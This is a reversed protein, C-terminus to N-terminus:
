AILKNVLAVLACLGIITVTSRNLANGANITKSVPSLTPIGKTTSTVAEVRVTSSEDSINVPNITSYSLPTETTTSRANPTTTNKCSAVKNLEMGYRYPNVHRQCHEGAEKIYIKQDSMMGGVFCEYTGVDRRQTYTYVLGKEEWQGLCRYEREEYVEDYNCASVEYHMNDPSHCESSLKACLGLADPILGTFEGNVPCPSMVQNHDLRAQTLWRSDDFYMDDCIISSANSGTRIGIQFELINASRKKVWVCHYSEEGCQTRSFVIYKESNIENEICKMTYTKFSQHDKYVVTSQDIFLHEWHGYMWDPYSCFISQPWNAQEVPYLVLSESHMVGANNDSSFANISACTSDNSFSITITDDDDKYTACRYQPGLREGNRSNMLALYKRNGVQWHGLCEFTIEHNEFSCKRFRLNMASGSPCNDLVSDPQPCEIKDELGDDVNYTLKYRGNIPCYERRIDQGDFERTKYLIIETHKSADNLMDLSPCSAIAKNENTYCKSIYDKDATHVKLVNRAVLKLHFCRFCATEDSGIMLIVNNEIRKHCQGWIAIADETINVDSYHVENDTVTSQTVFSGQLESSFYCAAHSRGVVAAAMCVILWMM